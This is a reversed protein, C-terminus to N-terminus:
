ELGGDHVVVRGKGSGKAQYMAQDALQIARDALEHMAADDTHSRSSSGDDVYAIGISAGVHLMTGCYEAISMSLREILRQAVSEASVRDVVLIFEDGALRAVIDDSRVTGSLLQAVGVLVADGAEHGYTDNIAKFGDLDIFLVSTPTAAGLRQALLPYLAHRNLLGTLADRHALHDLRQKLEKDATVDRATAELTIARGHQDRALTGRIEMWRVSGDLHVLRFELHDRPDKGFLDRGVRELDDPHIHHLLLDQDAVFSEADVGTFTRIAPSVYEIRYPCLQVRTVIDQSGEALERFRTESVTLEDRLLVQATLDTATGLYGTLVGDADRTQDSEVQVPVVVGDPRQYRFEASFRRGSEMAKSWQAHVRAKDDPHIAKAWGAGLAEEATMGTLEQWRRNAYRCAGKLDTEFIGVPAIAALQRFRAESEGIARATALEASVDAFTVVVGSPNRSEVSWMPHASVRMWRISRGFNVGWVEADVDVGGDLARWLPHRDRSVALGEGDVLPMSDAHLGVMMEAAPFLLMEAASVNADTCVGQHDVVIVGEALSDVVTQQHAALQALADQNELWETRDQVLFLLSDVGRVITPVSTWDVFRETGDPRVIWHNTPVPRGEPRTSSGLPAVPEVVVPRDRPRVHEFAAMREALADVSDVGMLELAAPNALRVRGRSELMLPMPMRDIIEDQRDEAEALEVRARQLSSVDRLTVVAGDVLGDVGYMPVVTATVLFSRGDDAVIRRLVETQEAGGRVRAAVTAADAQEGAHAFEAIPRGLLAAASQAFMECLAPNVHAICGDLGLTLVPVAVLDLMQERIGVVTGTDASM